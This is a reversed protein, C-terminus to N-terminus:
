YRGGHVRQPIENGASVYLMRNEKKALLVLEEISYKTLKYGLWETFNNYIIVEQSRRYLEQLLGIDTDELVMQCQILKKM